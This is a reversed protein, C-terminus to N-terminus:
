ARQVRQRFGYEMKVKSAEPSKMLNKAVSGYLIGYGVTSTIALVVVIYWGYYFRARQQDPNNM